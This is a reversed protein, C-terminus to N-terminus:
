GRAAPDAFGQRWSAYRPQWGLERKAKANSAGRQDTTMGVAASGAVLRALWVPVRRPKKAGVAEAFVPAWESMPAPEDDVVNYIGPGGREVAAVTASAADEVQIFSFVGTGKGVIPMRGKHFDETQSGDRGYYTGPGYLWGYRLVVGELGEAATVQRELDALARGADGFPGAAEAFAPADETKVWDGEPVYLFAVSEAIMRRAGAAKAAAVLNRTGESRLRNTPGLADKSKPDLRPPLSTLEHIVAEPAAEAVARKLAVADFVDCVVAKAGAAGIAEANEERRTMGTVDHGAALLQRVLPRGIAGSAGAVFVKM